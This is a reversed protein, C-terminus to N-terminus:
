QAGSVTQTALMADLKEMLKKGVAQNIYLTALACGACAQETPFRDHGVTGRRINEFVGTEHLDGTPAIHRIAHSGCRYQRGDPTFSAQTPAVYCYDPLALKGYLGEASAKAYADLGGRHAVRLFPNSFYGFLVGRDSEPIALQEQHRDWRRCVEPWVAEYFRRFEAESPRIGDNAAGGVPIVHPFLDNFLPQRRDKLQKRKGLIFSFLDPFADLNRNTLVCNTHIEPYAVGLLDRAIQVNYIGELVRDFHDGGFLANQVARDPSDLSIHLKALGSRILRLAVEPTILLANTNVNVAAGREVAFRVLGADGWLDEGLLLPEGGTIYIYPGKRGNAATVDELLTKWGALGVSADTWPQHCYICKPEFNCAATVNLGLFSLVPNRGKLGEPWRSLERFLEARDTNGSAIRDRTKQENFELLQDVVTSIYDRTQGPEIRGAAARDLWGADLTQRWAPAHLLRDLEQAHEPTYSALDLM